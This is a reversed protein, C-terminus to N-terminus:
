SSTSRPKPSPSRKSSPTRSSSMSGPKTAKRTAREIMELSADIGHVIGSAGTREKAVMALTGTGCGVDLVSEGPSVRALDLIKRRFARERGGLFFWALVDYARASHLVRGITGAAGHSSHTRHEPRMDSMGDFV